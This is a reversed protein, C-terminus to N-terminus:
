LVGKRVTIIIGGVKHLNWSTFNSKKNKRRNLPLHDSIRVYDKAKGKRSRQVYVSHSTRSTSIKFKGTHKRKLLLKYYLAIIKYM